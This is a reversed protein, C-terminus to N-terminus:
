WAVEAVPHTTRAQQSSAVTSEYGEVGQVVPLKVTFVAGSDESSNAATISGRHYDIIGRCIALGLGTGQEKLTFFPDFITSIHEAPIGPGTDAIQIVLESPQGVPKGRSEVAVLLTGGAGMAEVSNLCLNVFVQKLQDHDGMIPLIPAQYHRIVKIHHRTLEGSVLSLTEELPDLINLPHLPVASANSLSRLRRVLADIRDVENLTVKTFTDRFEEDDYQEPLLEALTKIAVLPNKIEHAIGSMFAGISALREIRRKEEELAKIQSLDNFALIAGSPQDDEGHLMSTSLVVPLTQGSATTLAAEHNAYAAKELLTDLLPLGLGYVMLQDLPQGLMENAQIGLLRAAAENVVTILNDHSVVVLGSEMHRLISENYEKMWNVEEHLQSRKLAAGAQHGITALFEIDQNFFPDGSRKEGVAIFGVVEQEFFLPILVKSQLRIFEEHLQAQASTDVWLALEDHLVPQSARKLLAMLDPSVVRLAGTQGPEGDSVHQYARQEISSHEQCLYVAVEEVKLTGLIFTTLHECLPDIRLLGALVQSFRRIAQRYDYEQRYCYRDLVYQIVARVQHFVLAGAVSIMLPLFPSSPQLRVEFGKDIVILLGWIIGVAAGASLGYTVSQRIVVRMDMLRHRIIAHATLAALPLTFYPGYASAQSSPVLAPIFSTRPSGAWHLLCM